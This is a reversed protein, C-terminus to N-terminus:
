EFTISKIPDIRSILMTPVVLMLITVFIVGVNLLLVYGMNFNMPVTSMYYSVPDLKIIHYHYQLGALLFAFLNGWIMGRAILGASVYLFLRRLSLNRCGLAKMLGILRTKDLILILLGSVMNFGAVLIILILIVWVNMNILSLWDFIQPALERLTRINYDRNEQYLREAIGEKMEEISGVHELEVAIGAAEGREWGNLRSLLRIDVWAMVDDYEKFGTDYVGEVVLPRVRPHEDVFHADIRDGPRVQLYSAMASSIVVKSSYRESIDFDPWVGEVLNEQFFASQFAGDVGRLVVGHIEKSSKFIAPKEIYSYAQRVGEIEQLVLALTDGGPIVEAQGLTEYPTVNVHATFGSLKRTIEQKFGTIIFVALLMVCLGLAIGAVAIRVIPVSM